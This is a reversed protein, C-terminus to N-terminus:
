FRLSSRLQIHLNEQQQQQFYIRSYEASAACEVTTSAFWLLRMGASLTSLPHKAVTYSAKAFASIDGASSHRVMIRTEAGMDVGSYLVDRGKTIEPFNYGLYFSRLSAIPTADFGLNLTSDLRLKYGYGYGFAIYQIDHALLALSNARILSLISRNYSSQKEIFIADSEILSCYFRVQQQQNINTGLGFSLMYAYGYESRSDHMPFQGLSLKLSVQHIGSASFYDYVVGKPGGIITTHAQASICGICLACFIGALVLTARQYYCLKISCGRGM